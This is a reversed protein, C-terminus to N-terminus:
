LSWIKQAHLVYRLSRQMQWLRPAWFIQMRPANQLSTSLVPCGLIKSPLDLVNSVSAQTSKCQLAACLAILAVRYKAFLYVASFLKLFLCDVVWVLDHLHDSFRGLFFPGFSCCGVFWEKLLTHWSQFFLFTGFRLFFLSVSLLDYHLVVGM